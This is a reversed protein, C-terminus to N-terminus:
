QFVGRKRWGVMLGFSQPYLGGMDAAAQISLLSGGAFAVPKEARLLLSLQTRTFPLSYTGFNQSLTARAQVEMAQVQATAGLHLALFRNNTTFSSDSRPLDERLVDQSPALPTGLNNGRYSWGQTYVYHNYYNDRGFIGNQFDFIRGGQSKTAVFEVLFAKLCSSGTFGPENRLISLGNLGDSINTLESLSGDEYINQRYLFYTWTKGKWKAGLDITGFHNGVRSSAWSKGLISYKYAEAPSLGGTFILYEGGWMVQHNFGGFLHLRHTPKGLRLYLSKHHMYTDPVETVNGYQVAASGMLGDSYSGKFALFHGTFGLSVFQPLAVQIRPMPRSNASWALSGSTLTTDQLGVTEKRQGASIELPGLRIAAYADTLFLDTKPGGFAVVEAGASWKIFSSSSSYRKYLGAQASGFSGEAPFMGFQNARLWFPTQSTTAAAQAAISYTFTSDQAHAVHALLVLFFGTQLFRM